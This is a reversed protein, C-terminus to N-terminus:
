FFKSTGLIVRCFNESTEFLSVDSFTYKKTTHNPLNEVLTSSSTEGIFFLMVKM